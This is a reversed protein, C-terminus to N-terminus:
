GHQMRATWALNVFAAAANRRKLGAWSGDSGDLSQGAGQRDFAAEAEPSQAQGPGTLLGLGGDFRGEMYDTM